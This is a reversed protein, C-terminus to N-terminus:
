ANNQRHSAAQPRLLLAANPTLGCSLLTQTDDSYCRQPFASIIDYAAAGPGRKRDLYHRLDGFTETFYMKMIFTEMGDESKVRLTTVDKSSPTLDIERERLARLASTEVTTTSYSKAGDPFGQLHAKVSDRISIVKGAKVVTEPLKQLFQEMSLKKGPIQSQKPATSITQESRDVSQGRAGDITQGRGPFETWPRRVVFEEDRKDHVELPVGNPFREQLESPFFGDMLDQMCEQATPEQYCRLPGNFMVIGNKYLWLPISSKQTLKAGGPIATVHSEGEGAVINLEQINQMVLDYNMKFSKRICTVAPLQSNAQEDYGGIWIMGYDNLFKEMELVQNQLKLCLQVLEEDQNENSASKEKAKQLLDLKEELVAIRRAKHEVDVTQTKVKRELQSIKQMMSSMLEFDSPPAEKAAKKQMVKSRVTSRNNMIHPVPQNQPFINRFLKAKYDTDSREKYPKREGDDDDSQIEPLPARKNKRLTSLPSSM